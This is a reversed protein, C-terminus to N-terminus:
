LRWDFGLQEYINSFYLHPSLIYLPVLFNDFFVDISISILSTVCIGVFTGMYVPLSFIGGLFSMEIM